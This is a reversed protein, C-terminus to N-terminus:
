DSKAVRSRFRINLAELQLLCVAREQVYWSDSSAGHIQILTDLAAIRTELYDILNDMM